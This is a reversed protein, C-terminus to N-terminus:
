SCINIYSRSAQTLSTEQKFIM